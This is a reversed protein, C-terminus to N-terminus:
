LNKKEVRFAKTIFPIKSSIREMKYPSDRQYKRQFHLISFIRESPFNM